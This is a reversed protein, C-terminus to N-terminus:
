EKTDYAIDQAQGWSGWSQDDMGGCDEKVSKNKSSKNTVLKAKNTEKSSTRKNREGARLAADIPRDVVMMSRLRCFTDQDLLKTFFDAINSGLTLM